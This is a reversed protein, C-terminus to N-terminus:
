ESLGNWAVSRKRYGRFVDSFMQNESIKQPFLFLGTAHFPSIKYWHEGEIKLLMEQLIKSLM